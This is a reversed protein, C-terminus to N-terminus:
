IYVVTYAPLLEVLQFHRIFMCEIYRSCPVCYVPAEVVLQLFKRLRFTCHFLVIGCGGEQRKGEGEGGADGRKGGDGHEDGDEGEGNGEGKGRQKRGEREGEEERFYSSVREM